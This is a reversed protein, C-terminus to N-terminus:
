SKKISWAVGRFDFMRLDLIFIKSTFVIEGNTQCVIFLSSSLWSLRFGVVVIPLSCLAFSFCVCGVRWFLVVDSRHRHFSTPILRGRRRPYTNSRLYRGSDTRLTEPSSWHCPHFSSRLFLFPLLNGGDFTRCTGEHM